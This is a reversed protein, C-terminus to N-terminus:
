KYTLTLKRGKSETRGGQGRSGHHATLSHCNPCDIRLNYIDNNTPDGDIHSLQTPINNGRRSNTKAEKGKGLFPNVEEWGCQWCAKGTKGRGFEEVIFQKMKRDIQRSDSLNLSEIGYKYIKEKEQKWEYDKQCQGSCYFRGSKNKALDSPRKYTVKGCNSCAKDEGRKKHYSSM